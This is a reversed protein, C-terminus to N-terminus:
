SPAGSLAEPAHGDRRATALWTLLASVFSAKPLISAVGCRRVESLEREDAHATLVVIPLAPDLARVRRVVEAGSMAPMRMDTILADYARVEILALAAPGDPAVEVRYGEDELLEALSTALARHDDVLLLHRM